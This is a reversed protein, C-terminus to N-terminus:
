ELCYDKINICELGDFDFRVIWPRLERIRTFEEYGFDKLYYHLVTGMAHEHSGVVLRQGRHKILLMNTAAINRDQVTQLCEGTKEHFLYDAWQHEVFGEYDEIWSDSVKRERFDKELGIKKGIRDALPKVTEVARRFPSSYVHNVECDYFFESLRSSDARGKATLPRYIEELTTYDTSTTHDTEAHRVFYITTTM